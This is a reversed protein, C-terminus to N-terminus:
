EQGCVGAAHGVGTIEGTEMGDGRSQALM